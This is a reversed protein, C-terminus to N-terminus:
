AGRKLCKIIGGKKINEMKGEIFAQGPDKCGCYNAIKYLRPNFLTLTLLKELDKGAKDDDLFLIIPTKLHRNLTKIQQRSIGVGMAAWVNSGPAFQKVALADLEGEVITLPKNADMQWHQGFWVGYKKGDARNSGGATNLIDTYVLYKPDLNGMTRGKVAIIEGKEDRIPFVIRRQYSDFRLMEKDITEQNFNRWGARAKVPFRENFVNESIPVPKAEEEKPEYAKAFKSEVKLIESRFIFSRLAPNDKGTLIFMKRPIDNVVGQINHSTGCTFCNFHSPNGVSIGFSPKNDTGYEHTWPAFICSSGVWSDRDVINKANLMRLLEHIQNRNM